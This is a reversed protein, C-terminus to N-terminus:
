EASRFGKWPAGGSYLVTDVNASLTRRSEKSDKFPYVTHQLDYPFVFFDGVVAKPTFNPLLFQGNANGLFELKGNTPLEPNSIEKGYNKPLKLIMVSSLGVLSRNSSHLHVPNYEGARMDNVWMSSLQLALDWAGLTDVYDKFRQMFWDFIEQDLHNCKAQPASPQDNYLIYENKIKGALFSGASKLKNKKKNDYIKNLKDMIHQPTDYKMISQGLRYIQKPLRQLNKSM